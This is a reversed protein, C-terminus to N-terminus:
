FEDEKWFGNVQRVQRLDKERESWRVVWTLVCVPSFGNWQSWQPFFNARDSSFFRCALTCALCRPARRLVAADPEAEDVAAVVRVEVATTGAWVCGLPPRPHFFSSM